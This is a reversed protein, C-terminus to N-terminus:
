PHLVLKGTFAPDDLLEHARRADALPLVTAPPAQVAGSAMLAMADQMLARRQAVDADFSDRRGAAEGLSPKHVLLVTDLAPGKIHLVDIGEADAIAQVAAHAFQVGVAVPM